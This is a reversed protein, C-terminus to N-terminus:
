PTSIRENLLRTKSAKAEGNITLLAEAIVTVNLRVSKRILLLVIVPTFRVSEGDDAGARGASAVKM